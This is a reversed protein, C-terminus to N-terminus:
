EHRRAAPWLSEEKQPSRPCARHHKGENMPARARRGARALGLWRQDQATARSLPLFAAVPGPEQPEGRHVGGWRAARPPGPERYLSADVALTDCGVLSVRKGVLYEAAESSLGPWDELFRRGEPGNAWRRDWGYRVLVGDGAEIPGHEAEWAEIREALLLGGAGLGTTEITAARVMLRELPIDDVGYHAPGEPIFHLPADVHTGTHEGMTLGYHLAADGYEYSEYLTMGFRAHTPYAPTGEKLTHSLDVVEYSEPILKRVMEGSGSVV